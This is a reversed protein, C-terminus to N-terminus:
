NRCYIYKLLQNQRVDEDNGVHMLEIVKSKDLRLASSHQCCCTIYHQVCFCGIAM